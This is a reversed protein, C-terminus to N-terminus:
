SRSNAGLAGRIDGSQEAKTLLELAKAHLASLQELLSGGHAVESAEVAQALAVPIHESKHRQLATTSTGTREALHRFPEQDLLAQNIIEKNAHTCITCTRSM